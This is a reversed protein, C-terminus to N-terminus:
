GASDCKADQAEADPKPHSQGLSGSSDAVWRGFSQAPQNPQKAQEQPLVVRLLRWFLGRSVVKWAAFSSGDGSASLLACRSLPLALGHLPPLTQQHRLKGLGTEGIPSPHVGSALM